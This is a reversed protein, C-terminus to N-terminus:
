SLGLVRRANEYMVKRRTEESLEFHKYADLADALEQAQATPYQTIMTHLAALPRGSDGGDRPGKCAWAPPCVPM